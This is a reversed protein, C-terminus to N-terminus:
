GATKAPAYVRRMTPFARDPTCLGGRRRIRRLRAATAVAPIMRPKPRTPRPHRWASPARASVLEPWILHWDDPRLDPRRVVGQTAMEIAVCRTPNIRLGKNVIQSLYIPSMDIARALATM